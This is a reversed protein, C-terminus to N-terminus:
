NRLPGDLWRTVPQNCQGEEMISLDSIEMWWFLLRNEIYTKGEQRYHKQQCASSDMMMANWVASHIIFSSM